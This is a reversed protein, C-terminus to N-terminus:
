TKRAQGVLGRLFMLGYRRDMENPLMRYLEVLELEDETLDDVGAGLFYNVPHNLIEPLKVLHEVLLSNRGTEIHSYSKKNIGLKEAVEIQTMGQSERASRLRKGVLSKLDNQM